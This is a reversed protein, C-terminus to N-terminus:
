KIEKKVKEIKKRRKKKEEEEKESLTTISTPLPDPILPAVRDLKKGNPSPPATLVAKM